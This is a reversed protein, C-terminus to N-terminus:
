FPDGDLTTDDEIQFLQSQASNIFNSINSATALTQPEPPNVYILNNNQQNYHQLHKQYQLQQQHQNQLLQQQQSQLIQQQQRQLCQQNQMTPQHQYNQSFQNQIIKQGASSDQNIAQKSLNTYTKAQTAASEITSLINQNSFSSLEQTVAQDITNSQTPAPQASTPIQSSTQAIDKQAANTKTTKKPKITKKFEKGAINFVTSPNEDWIRQRAECCLERCVINFDDNTFDPRIDKIFDKFIFIFFTFFVEYINIFIYCFLRQM